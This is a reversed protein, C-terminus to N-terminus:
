KCRIYLRKKANSIFCNRFREPISEWVVKQAPSLRLKKPLPFKQGNRQYRARVLSNNYGGYLNYAAFLSHLLDAQLANLQHAIFFIDPVDLFGHSRGHEYLFMREGKVRIRDAYYNLRIFTDYRDKDRGISLIVPGPGLEQLIGVMSGQENLCAERLDQYFTLRPFFSVDACSTDYSLVSLRRDGYVLLRNNKVSLASRLPRASPSVVGEINIKITERSVSDYIKAWETSLLLCQSRQPGYMRLSSAAEEPSAIKQSHRVDGNHTHCALISGNDYCLRLMDPFLSVYDEAANDVICRSDEGNWFCVGQDGTVAVVGPMSGDIDILNGVFEPVHFYRVTKDARLDILSIVRNLAFLFFQETQAFACLDVKKPISKTKKLWILFSMNNFEYAPPQDYSHRSLGGLVFSAIIKSIGPILRSQISELVRQRQVIRLNNYESRNLGMLEIVDPAYYGQSQNNKDREKLKKYEHSIKRLRSRPDEGSHSDFFYPLLTSAPFPKHMVTAAFIDEPAALMSLFSVVIIVRSKIYMMM